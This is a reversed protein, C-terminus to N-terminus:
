AVEEEQVAAKGKFTGPKFELPEEAEGEREKPLAARKGKQGKPMPDIDDLWMVAYHRSLEASTVRTGDEREIHYKDPGICVLTHGLPRTEEIVHPKKPGTINAYRAMLRSQEGLVAQQVMGQEIDFGAMKAVVAPVEQGHADRYVGPEDTYMHIRPGWNGDEDLSLQSIMPRKMDVPM